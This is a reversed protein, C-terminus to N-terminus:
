SFIAGYENSPIERANGGNIPKWARHNYVCRPGILIPSAFDCPLRNCTCWRNCVYM